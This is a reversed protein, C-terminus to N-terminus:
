KLASGIVTRAGRAHVRRVGMLVLAAGALALSGPEPNSEWVGTQPSFNDPTSTGDLNVNVTFAIGDPDSALVPITGAPDTFMSFAFTSGSASLGDPSSLAPGSLSVQFFITSGFKFGQFYDNFGTLNDFTLTGPLTGSADGTNCLGACAVLSGDSVFNLIQLSALQTPLLPGPNFNFDLSGNTGSISSTDITADYVINGASALSTFCTLVTGLL